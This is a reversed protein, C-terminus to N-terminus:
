FFEKGRQQSSYPYFVQQAFDFSYHMKMHRSCAKQEKIHAVTSLSKLIVSRTKSSFAQWANKAEEIQRHYFTRAADADRYHAEYESVLRQWDERSTVFRM